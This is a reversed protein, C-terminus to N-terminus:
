AKLLVDLALATASKKKDAEILTALREPTIPKAIFDLGRDFGRIDVSLAQDAPAFTPAAARLIKSWHPLLTPQELSPGASAKWATTYLHVFSALPWFAEFVNPGGLVYLPLAISKALAIAEDPSKVSCAVLSLKDQKRKENALRRKENLPSHRPRKDM